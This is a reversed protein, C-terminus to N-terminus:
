GIAEFDIGKIHIQSKTGRSGKRPVEIKDAYIVLGLNGGYQNKLRLDYNSLLDTKCYSFDKKSKTIAYKDEDFDRVLARAGGINKGASGYERAEKGTLLYNKTYTYCPKLTPNSANDVAKLPIKYDKDVNAFTNRIMNNLAKSYDDEPQEENKLLIKNLSQLVKKSLEQSSSTDIQEEKTSGFEDFAMQGYMLGFQKDNIVIKSVPIVKGFSPSFKVQM